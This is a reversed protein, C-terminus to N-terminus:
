CAVSAKQMISSRKWRHMQVFLPLFGDTPAPQLPWASEARGGDHRSLLLSSMGHYHKHITLRINPLALAPYPKPEPCTAGCDGPSYRSVPDISVCTSVKKIIIFAGGARPKQILLTSYLQLLLLSHCLFAQYYVMLGCGAFGM